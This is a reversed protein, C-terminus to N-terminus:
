GRVWQGLARVTGDDNLAGEKHLLIVLLARVQAGSLADVRVGVASQALTRVQQRLAAAAQQQAAQRAPIEALADSIQQDTPETEPPHAYTLTVVGDDRTLSAGSGPALQEIAAALDSLDATHPLRRM